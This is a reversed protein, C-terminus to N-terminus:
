WHPELIHWSQRASFIDMKCAPLFFKSFLLDSNTDLHRWIFLNRCFFTRNLAYNKKTTLRTNYKGLVKGYLRYQLVFKRTDSQGESAIVRIAFNFILKQKQGDGLSQNSAERVAGYSRVHSM